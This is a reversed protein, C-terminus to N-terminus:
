REKFLPKLEPIDGAKRWKSLGTVRVRHYKKLRGEAIMRKLRAFTVPTLMRDDFKLDYKREAM